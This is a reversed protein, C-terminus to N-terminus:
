KGIVYKGDVTTTNVASVGCCEPGIIVPSTVTFTIAVSWHKHTTLVAVPEVCWEDLWPQLV